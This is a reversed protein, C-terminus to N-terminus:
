GAKAEVRRPLRRHPRVFHCTYGDPFRELYDQHEPEAELLSRCPRSGNGGQRAVPRFCQRGRPHRRRHAEPRRKRSSPRAIAPALSIARDIEHQRITFRSSSNWCPAIVRSRRISLSRVAYRRPMAQRLTLAPMTPFMLGSAGCVESCM